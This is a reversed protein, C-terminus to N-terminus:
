RGSDVPSPAAEPDDVTAPRGLILAGILAVLLLFAVVEFPLVFKTFLATGVAKPVGGQVLAEADAPLPLLRQAFSYLLGALLLIGLGLAVWRSWARHAAVFDNTDGGILMIVFLILVVIGGAYVIVQVAALFQAALTVYLVALMAFNTLLFLASHVPQRSVVVGVAAALSVAAILLFFLVSLSM